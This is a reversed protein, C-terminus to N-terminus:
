RAPASTPEKASASAPQSTALPPLEGGMLKVIKGMAQLQAQQAARMEQRFGLIDAKWKVLEQRMEMLVANAERLEKQAAELDSQLKQNDLQLAQIKDRQARNEQQAATVTQMAQSYKNAWGLANEVATEGPVDPDKKVATKALYSEPPAKAAPQTAPAAPTSAHTMAPWSGECGLFVLCGAGLLVIIWQKM